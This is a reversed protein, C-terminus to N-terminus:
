SCTHNGGDRKGEGKWGHDDLRGFLPACCPRFEYCKVSTPVKLVRQNVKREVGRKSGVLVEEGARWRGKAKEPPKARGGRVM